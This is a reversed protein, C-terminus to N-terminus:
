DGVGLNTRSEKWENYRQSAFHWPEKRQRWLTPLLEGWAAWASTYPPPADQRIEEHLYRLRNFPVTPYMHHELHYNM